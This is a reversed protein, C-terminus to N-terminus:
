HELERRADEAEKEVEATLERSRKAEEVLREDSAEALDTHPPNDPSPAQETAKDPAAPRPESSAPTDPRRRLEDIAIALEELGAALGRGWGGILISLNTQDTADTLEGLLKEAEGVPGEIARRVRERHGM